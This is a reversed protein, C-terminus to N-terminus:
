ASPEWRPHTVAFRADPWPHLIRPSPLYAAVLQAMRAWTSMDRQGRRRLTRLWLRGVHHHFANLSRANTPLAHYAFYGRVVRGLWQGQEPVPEHMRRRLGEKVARLRLRMRDRRTKRKLQFGGARTRGCIHTFGLFNFTEPKGLGREARREGAYRGFEILRTKDPHLARAFEALRERLDALFREAEVKHEFGVVIDDAYRVCVCSM